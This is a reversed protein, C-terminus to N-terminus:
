LSPPRENLAGQWVGVSRLPIHVQSFTDATHVHIFSLMEREQVCMCVCLRACVCLTHPQKSIAQSRDLREFRIHQCYGDTARWAPKHAPSLAPQMVGHLNTSKVLAVFRKENTGGDSPLLLVESSLTKKGGRETVHHLPQEINLEGSLSFCAM